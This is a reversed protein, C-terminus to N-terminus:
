LPFNLVAFNDHLETAAKDYMRAAQIPDDFYGLHKDKGNVGIRCKWLGNRKDFSVGKYGSTNNSSLGRNCSNQKTTSLRLNSRRNDLTDGNIHDVLEFRDLSKELILSLIVRHMYVTKHRNNRNLGRGAVFKGGNSYEPLFIASWNLEALGEDIEDVNAVQGQTLEIEVM